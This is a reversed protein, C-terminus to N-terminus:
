QRPWIQEMTFDVWYLDTTNPIRNYLEQGSASEVWYDPGPFPSSPGYRSARLGARLTSSPPATTPDPTPSVAGGPPLTTPQDQPPPRLSCGALLVTLSTVIPLLVRPNPARDEMEEGKNGQRGMM